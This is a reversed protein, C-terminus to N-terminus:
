LTFNTECGGNSCSHGGTCKKAWAEYQCTGDVCEPNQYFVLWEYDACYSAPLPCSEAADAGCTV